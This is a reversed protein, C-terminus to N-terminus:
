NNKIHWGLRMITERFKELESCLDNVKAAVVSYDAQIGLHEIEEARQRVMIAGVYNAAGKLSHAQGSIATINREDLLKTLNAIRGPINRIFNGIVERAIDKDGTLLHLMYSEDFVKKVEDESPEPQRKEPSIIPQVAQSNSSLSATPTKNIEPLASVWKELKTKLDMPQIPKVLYDDMGANLCKEKDGKMALATLAIIPVCPNYVGAENSRIKMTTEFGDMEPMQCDMLVIDYGRSKLKKIAEIGNHAEDTIFGYKRLLSTVVFRITENDEVLLVHIRNNNGTLYLDDKSLGTENQSAANKTVGVIGKLCDRLRAQRIPKTIFSTFGADSLYGTDGRKNLAIIMILVARNIALDNKIIKGLEIGDMDPLNKSILILQYPEGSVAAQKLISIAVKAEAVETHKCKWKELLLGIYERRTESKDVLLVNLGKINLDEQLKDPVNKQKELSLSFWFSSGKNEISNVGIRGDMLEILQKSIALGLGTGEYKRTTSGDLQVFPSFLNKIKDAPIGIGQDTISFIVEVKDPYDRILNVKLIIEGNDSFKVANSGLNILIQRLRTSDGHLLTPINPEISGAIELGKEFARISIIEITDELLTRLDFDTKEILLKGAEMKSLDLINNVLALLSDSSNRLVELYQAQKATLNTDFLLGIMGIIGSIPTRIEHSMNALFESKARNAEDAKLAMEKINHLSEKHQTIDRLHILKGMHWKDKYRVDQIVAEYAYNKSEIMIDIEKNVGTPGSDEKCLQYIAPCLTAINGGICEQPNLTFKEIAARNIDIILGENDVVFIIDDISSMVMERTIPAVNLIRYRFVALFMMSGSLFQLAPTHNYNPVITFGAQFLMDSLVHIMTGLSFFVTQMRAIPNRKRYAFYLLIVVSIILTYTYLMHYNFLPGNKFKITTIPGYVYPTFDYRFIKSKGSTMSFYVIIVPEIMLLLWRGKELWRKKGGHQIAVMLWLGSMWGLGLFRSKVLFIKLNIDNVLLELAYILSWWTACIMMLGFPIAMPIKRNRFSYVAVSMMIIAALINPIIFPIVKM